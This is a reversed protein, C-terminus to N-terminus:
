IDICFVRQNNAIVCTDERDTEGVASTADRQSFENFKRRINVDLQEIGVYALTRTKGNVRIRQVDGFVAGVCFPRKM